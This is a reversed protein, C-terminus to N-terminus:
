LIIWVTILSARLIMFHLWLLCFQLASYLVWFLFVWQFFDATDLVQWQFFSRCLLTVVIKMKVLLLILDFKQLKEKVAAATLIDFNYFLVQKRFFNSLYLNIQKGPSYFMFGNRWTQLWFCYEQCLRWTYIHILAEQCCGKPIKFNHIIFTIENLLVVFIQFRRPSGREHSATVGDLLHFVVRCKLFGLLWGQTLHFGKYMIGARKLSTSDM